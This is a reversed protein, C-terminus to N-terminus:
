SFPRLCVGADLLAVRVARATTAAGPSDGHVCLSEAAVEVTSGDSAVVCGELALRRARAAVEDPDLVLAGPRRRPVLTGDPLYARDPYAERVARLGAASALRALVSGPLCLLCGGPRFAAVAEVVAAAQAEDTVVRNYLAGHAKVYSVEGGAAEALAALAGCQYLIEDRLETPEVDLDRRGFGALDRYGVQAGIRVGTAVATESVRRMTAADGAHFGCAVNASTVVELLARDDTLSWRGFGEGLDANLDVAPGPRASPEAPPRAM